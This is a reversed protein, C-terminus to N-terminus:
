GTSGTASGTRSAPAHLRVLGRVASPTACGIPARSTSSSGTAPPEIAAAAEHSLCLITVDAEHALAEDNTVFSRCRQRRRATSRARGAPQGALSDSGAAVLRSSPHGLVRDLTEQGTYGAAGVISVDAMSQMSHLELTM